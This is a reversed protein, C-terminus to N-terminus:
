AQEYVRLISRSSETLKGDWKLDYYNSFAEMFLPAVNTPVLKRARSSLTTWIVKTLKGSDSLKVVRRLLETFENLQEDNM